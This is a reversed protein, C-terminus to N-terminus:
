EAGVTSEDAEEQAPELEIPSFTCELKCKPISLSSPLGTNGDIHLEYTGSEIMGSVTVTDGQQTVTTNGGLLAHQLAQILSTSFANMLTNQNNVDVSLGLYSITTKQGDFEFKMGNLIAPETLTVVYDEGSKQLTGKAEWGDCSADIGLSFDTQIQARQETKNQKMCGVFLCILLLFGVIPLLKRPM